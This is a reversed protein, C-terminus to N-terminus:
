GRWARRPGVDLHIFTKYIGIGRFGFRRANSILAVADEALVARVDAAQGTMHYSHEAGGVAKNHEPCRYGSVIHLPMQLGERLRDLADLLDPDVLVKGCHKCAFEEATFYRGPWPATDRTLFKTFTM